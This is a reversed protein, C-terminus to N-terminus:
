SNNGSYFSNKYVELTEEAMKMWSYNKTFERAKTIIEKRKEKSLDKAFDMKKAIDSFDFPNFYIANDKYVEKFVPIESALVLTELQMAELGQLGFGEM